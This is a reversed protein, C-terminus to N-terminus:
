KEKNIVRVITLSAVQGIYATVNSSATAVLPIYRPRETFSLVSHRVGDTRGLTRGARSLNFANFLDSRYAKFATWSQLETGTWRSWADILIEFTVEVSAEGLHGSGDLTLPANGPYLMLFSSFGSTAITDDSKSIQKDPQTFRLPLSSSVYGVVADELLSYYDTM